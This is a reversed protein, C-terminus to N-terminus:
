VNELPNLNSSQLPWHMISISYKYLLKSVWRDQHYLANDHMFLLSNEDVVRIMDQNAVHGLLDDIMSMLGDSLIAMYEVAGISGQHLPLIPGIRDGCFCTWVM